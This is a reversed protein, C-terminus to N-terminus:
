EGLLDKRRTIWDVGDVEFLEAGFPTDVVAVVLSELSEVMAVLELILKAQERERVHPPYNRYIKKARETLEM